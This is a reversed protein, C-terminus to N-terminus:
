AIIGVEHLQKILREILSGRNVVSLSHGASAAIIRQNIFPAHYLTHIIDSEQLNM